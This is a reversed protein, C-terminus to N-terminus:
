DQPDPAAREVVAQRIEASLDLDAAAASIAAAIASRKQSHPWSLKQSHLSSSSRSVPGSRRSRLMLKAPIYHLTETEVSRTADVVTSAIAVVIGGSDKVAAELDIGILPEDEVILIRQGALMQRRMLLPPCVRGKPSWIHPFIGLRVVCYHVNKLVICVGARGAYHAVRAGTGLRAIKSAPANVAQAIAKQTNSTRALAYRTRSRRSRYVDVHHPRTSYPGPHADVHEDGISFTTM